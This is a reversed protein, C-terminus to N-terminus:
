SKSKNLNKYCIVYVTYPMDPGDRIICTSDFYHKCYCGAFVHIRAYAGDQVESQTHIIIKHM